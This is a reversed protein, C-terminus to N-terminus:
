VVILSIVTAPRQNNAGTGGAQAVAGPGSGPATDASWPSPRLGSAAMPKLSAFGERSPPQRSM